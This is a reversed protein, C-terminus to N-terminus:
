NTDEPVPLGPASAALAREALEARECPLLYIIRGPPLLGTDRERRSPALFRGLLGSALQKCVAGPLDTGVSVRTGLCPPVHPAAAGVNIGVGAISAGRWALHPPPTVLTSVVSSLM